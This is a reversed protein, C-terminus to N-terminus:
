NGTRVPMLVHLYTKNGVETMKVPKLNGSFELKIQSTTLGSLAETLFRANFSIELNEGTIEGMLESSGEGMERSQASIAVKKEKQTLTLHIINTNDRAFIAAVKVAKLFEERDLELTTIFDKPIIKQYQPFQGELLRLFVQVKEEEAIVQNKNESLYFAVQKTKKKGKEKEEEGQTMSRTFELLGRAPLILNEKLITKESIEQLSLRFGDTTVLQLKEKKVEFLVGTLVQRSMDISASFLTKELAKKLEEQSLNFNSEKGKEPFPPFDDAIMCNFSSSYVGAKVKLLLNDTELDVKGASLSSIFEVFLRAPVAISGEEQVEVPLTLKIGIELDTASIILNQKVAQLHINGLIPLNPKTSVLRSAQTLAKSLSDQFVQVKM